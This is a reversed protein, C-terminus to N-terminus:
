AGVLELYLQLLGEGDSFGMILFVCKAFNIKYGGLGPTKQTALRKCLVM